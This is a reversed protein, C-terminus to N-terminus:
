WRRTLGAIIFGWGDVNQESQESQHSSRSGQAKLMRLEKLTKFVQDNLNELTNDNSIKHKRLKKDM